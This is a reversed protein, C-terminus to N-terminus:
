NMGISHNTINDHHTGADDGTSYFKGINEALTHTYLRGPTTDLFDYQFVWATAPDLGDVHIGYTKDPGGSCILPVLRYAAGDVKRPDFPDHDNDEDRPLPQMESVFGPAWRLFMIPRGWADHFEFFGDQDYDGIENEQFLERADPDAAVILYLLEAQNFEKSIRLSADAPDSTFDYIQRFYRRNLSPRQVTVVGVNFSRNIDNLQKPPNTISHDRPYTIDTLRDPMEMRIIERLVQLKLEAMALPNIKLNPIPLRRSAYEAYKGQIITDLKTITSKTKEKRASERAAALAGLTMAALMGIIVIVVLLEVLTFGPRLVPLSSAPPLPCSAASLQRARQKNDSVPINRKM